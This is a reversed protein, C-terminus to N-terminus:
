RLYNKAAKESLQYKEKLKHIIVAENIELEQLTSVMNKIGRMEGKMEGRIEGKIEGRMEGRMEGKMEAQKEWNELATCMNVYEGKKELAYEVFKM